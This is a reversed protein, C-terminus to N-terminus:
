DMAELEAQEDLLSEIEQTAMEIWAASDTLIVFDEFDSIAEEISGLGKHALGRNFYAYTQEPDIYIAKNCDTIAKHFEEKNIYAYARHVYAEAITDDLEIIKSFDAIALDYEETANYAMARNLYALTSEPDLNIAETSDSIAEEWRQLSNYAAARNIYAQTKTTNTPNGELVKTYEAEAEEYLGQNALDYAHNFHWEPSGEPPSSCGLHTGLIVLALVLLAVAQRGMIHRWILSLCTYWHYPLSVMVPM